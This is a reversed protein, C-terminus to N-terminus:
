RPTFVFKVDVKSSVPQGDITAPEYRWQLLATKAAQALIPSGSVVQVESPRGTRDVITSLVVTGFTNRSAAPYVPEVRRIL